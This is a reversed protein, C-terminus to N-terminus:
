VVILGKRLNRIFAGEGREYAEMSLFSCAVVVDNELSIEAVIESTREIEEYANVRGHLVVLVDIDSEDTAEDRAHSGFLGFLSLKEGYLASFRNRLDTLLSQLDNKTM